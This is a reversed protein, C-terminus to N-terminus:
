NRFYPFSSATLFIRLDLSDLLNANRQNLKDFGDCKTYCDNRRASCENSKPCGRASKRM